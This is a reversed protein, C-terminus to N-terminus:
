ARGARPRRERLPIMWPVLRVAAVMVLLEVLTQTVVVLPAHDLHAPLALALPLVVLSNRTMGSLALARRAPVDLRAVRGAVMGLVLMVAAFLACAGFVPLLSGLRREVGAIQSAVVVALTLMMLPVMTAPMGDRVLRGARTRRALAQTLAAAVLPVVLLLLFARAFPALDIDAVVGPGVILRLGLPVSVLQVLMLVPAAALLRDQAGGALGTFVIVYDVCPALLVLLLGVELAPDHAVLRSLTFAVLPVIGVNVVLLALLFRGDQVARGLRDLPVGLFTVYLLLGLVPTIALEAPRAVGPMLVGVVAGLVLAALYLPVQRREWREVNARM